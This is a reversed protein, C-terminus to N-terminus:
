LYIGSARNLEKVSELNFTQYQAIVEYDSLLEAKLLINDLSNLFNHVIRYEKKTTELLPWLEKSYHNIIFSNESLFLDGLRYNHNHQLTVINNM